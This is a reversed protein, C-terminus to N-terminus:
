LRHKVRSQGDRSCLAETSKSLFRELSKPSKMGAPFPMLVLEFNMNLILFVNKIASNILCM